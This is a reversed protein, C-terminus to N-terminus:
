QVIWPPAWHADITVVKLCEAFLGEGLGIERFQSASDVALNAVAVDPRLRALAHQDDAVADAAEVDDNARDREFSLDQILHRGEPEVLGAVDGLVM